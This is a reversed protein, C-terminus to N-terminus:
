SPVLSRPKKLQRDIRQRVKYAAIGMLKTETKGTSVAEGIQFQWKWLGPEILELTFAVGKRIM